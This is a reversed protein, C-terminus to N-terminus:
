HKACIWKITEAASGKAQDSCSAVPRAEGGSVSVLKCQCCYARWGASPSPVLKAELRWRDPANNRLFLYDATPHWRRDDFSVM